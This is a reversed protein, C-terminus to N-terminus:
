DDSHGESNDELAGKARRYEEIYKLESMMLLFAPEPGGNAVGNIPKLAELDDLATMLGILADREKM